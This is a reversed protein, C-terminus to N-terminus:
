ILSASNLPLFFVNLQGWQVLPVVLMGTDIRSFTMWSLPARSSPPKPCWPCPTTTPLLISPMRLRTPLLRASSVELARPPKFMHTTTSYSMSIWIMNYWTSPHHM